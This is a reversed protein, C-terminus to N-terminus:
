FHFWFSIWCVSVLCNASFFFCSAILIFTFTYKFFSFILQFLQSFSFVSSIIERQKNSINKLNIQSVFYTLKTVISSIRVFHISHRTHENQISWNRSILQHASLVFSIFVPQNNLEEKWFFISLRINKLLENQKFSLSTKGRFAQVRRALQNLNM